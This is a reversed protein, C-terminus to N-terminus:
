VTMPQTVWVLILLLSSIIRVSSQGDMGWNLFYSSSLFYSLLIIYCHLYIKFYTHGYRKLLIILSWKILNIINNSQLVLVEHMKLASMQVSNQCKLMNRFAATKLLSKLSKNSKLPLLYFQWAVLFIVFWFIRFSCLQISNNVLKLM